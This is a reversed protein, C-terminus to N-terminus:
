YGRGRPNPSGDGDGYEEQQEEQEGLAKHFVGALCRDRRALIGQICAFVFVDLQLYGSPTSLSDDIQTKTLRNIRIKEYRM